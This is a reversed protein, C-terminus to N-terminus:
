YVLTVILFNDTHFCTVPIAQAIVENAAANLINVAVDVSTKVRSALGSM